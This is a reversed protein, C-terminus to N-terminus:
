TSIELPYLRQVPRIMTKSIGNKSVALRVLRLHGDQGPLEEIIKAMPWLIRKKNELEVLVIDINGRQVLAGLYEKKFRSRLQEKLDQKYRYRKRLGDASNLIIEPTRTETVDRLFHSPTLPILDESDETVYTLPRSNMIAEVFTVCTFLEEHNLRQRGLIRKMLDKMIRILREWWGGWWAATPPNFKWVIRLVGCEKVIYSEM